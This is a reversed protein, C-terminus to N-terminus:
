FQYSIGAELSFGAMAELANIESSLNESVRQSYKFSWGFKNTYKDKTVSLLSSTGSENNMVWRVGFMSACTFDGPLCRSDTLYEFLLSVDHSSSFVGTFIYELGTISATDVLGSAIQVLYENKFLWEKYTAQLESSYRRVDPYTSHEGPQSLGAHRERSPGNFYSLNWDLWGWAGGIRLAHSLTSCQFSIFSKDRVTDDKFRTYDSLTGNRSCPLLYGSIQIGTGRYGLIALPISLREDGYPNFRFDPQNIVDVLHRSEAVGWFVRSLGARLFFHGDDHSVSLERVDWGFQDPLWKNYKAVVDLDFVTSSYNDSSWEFKAVISPYISSYGTANSEQYNISPNLTIYYPSGFVTLPRYFFPAALVLLRCIQFRLLKPM